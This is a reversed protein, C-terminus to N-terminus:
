VSVRNNRRRGEKACWKTAILNIIEWTRYIRAYIPIGLVLEIPFTESDPALTVSLKGFESSAIRLPSYATILLKILTNSTNSSM